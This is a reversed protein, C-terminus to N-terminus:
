IYNYLKYRPRVNVTNISLSWVEHIVCMNTSSTVNGSITVLDALTVHLFAAILEYFLRLLCLHDDVAFLRFLCHDARDQFIWRWIQQETVCNDISYWCEFKESDMYGVVQFPCFMSTSDHFCEWTQVEQLRQLSRSTCLSIKQVEVYRNQSQYQFACPVSSQYSWLRICKHRQLLVGHADYVRVVVTAVVLDIYSINADVSQFIYPFYQSLSKELCMNKGATWKKVIQEWIPAVIVSNITQSMQLWKVFQPSTSSSKAVTEYKIAKVTCM